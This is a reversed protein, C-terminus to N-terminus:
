VMVPMAEAALRAACTPGVWITVDSLEPLRAVVVRDPM